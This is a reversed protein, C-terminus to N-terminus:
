REGEYYSFFDIDATMDKSLMLAYYDRAAMEDSFVERNYRYRGVISVVYLKRTLKGYVSKDYQLENMSHLCASAESIKSKRVSRRDKLLYSNYEKRLEKYEKQHEIVYNYRRYLSQATGVLRHSGYTQMIREIQIRLDNKSKM